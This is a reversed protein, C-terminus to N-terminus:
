VCKGPVEYLLTRVMYGAFSPCLYLNDLECCAWCSGSWRATATVGTNGAGVECVASLLGLVFWPLFMKKTNITSRDWSAVQSCVCSLLIPACTSNALSIWSLWHQPPLGRGRWVDQPIGSTLWQWRVGLSRQQTDPTPAKSSCHCCPLLRFLFISPPSFPDPQTLTTLIPPDQGIMMKILGTLVPIDSLHGSM